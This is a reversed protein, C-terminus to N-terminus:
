LAQRQKSKNWYGNFYTLLRWYQIKEKLPVTQSIFGIEKKAAAIKELDSAALRFIEQKIAILEPLKDKGLFCVYKGCNGCLQKVHPGKLFLVSEGKYGCRGCNSPLLAM